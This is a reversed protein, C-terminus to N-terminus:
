RFRDFSRWYKDKYIEYNFNLKGQYGQKLQYLLKSPKRFDKCAFYIIREGDATQRGINLYGDFDKLELMIEDEFVDLLDYTAQDPMGHNASGDYKVDIALIWPHSAKSDWELLTTNVIAILPLGNNLEAELSAYSDNETQYRVGSYKEVFEKERWLLFDKLKSIPILEKEAQNTSILSLNDITTVTKLEGLYNDLFIYVGNLLVSRDQENYNDHTIVVDIEDPYNADETYYFSLNEASFTYDGMRIGINTIDNAPKLATFKWNPIEPAANVLEEVFVINLVNGDPTFVLEATHDDLMGALFFYGDKLEQLKPFLQDFFDPEINKQSKVVDHFQKENVKFWSWFDQYTQVPKEKKGFIQNLFKM